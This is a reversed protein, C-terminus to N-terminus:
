AAHPAEHPLPPPAGGAPPGAELSAEVVDSVVAGDLMRVIRGAYTAIREDHTVMVITKGLRHVGALAEMVEAGTQTDLNGTPEDALVLDPNNVLARAIAVRQQEGGSLQSPRHLGRDSLGVAALAAAARTRRHALDVGAFILPFEVNERASMAALLNFSQFVFGVRKQRYRCLADHDFRTIDEGEVLLRGSTPQDLGGLLHLFTSKGSGSPGMIAVFDGVGIALNLGNLARITQEGLTFHKHLDEAVILPAAPAAM